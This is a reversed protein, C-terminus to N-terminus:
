GGNIQKYRIDKLFYEMDDKFLKYSFIKMEHCNLKMKYIKDKSLQLINVIKSVSEDDGNLFFGNEGELVYSELDSTKTTIVPTGYSLSESIKTPFGATTDRNVDRILITFDAKAIEETVEENPKLGLFEIDKGLGKVFVRQSPIAELYENETFGYINFKFRVGKEKAKYLLIITKDIRDKLNKLDKVVQGKRFPIGAYVILNSEHNNTRISNSDIPSLPPIIVTKIKANSYYAKLFKSIAIVGDVRKNLYAKQYTNDAWKILNFIPNNTKVTLWDVCDSIIRINNNRSYRILKNIFLSLSPSGYYIIMDINEILIKNCIFETLIKYLMNYNIWSVNSKPYPFNYYIFGDYEKETEELKCYRDIDRDVGIFVVEFGLERFLKGNGYVRKGAANGLPFSFNGIYIIKKM